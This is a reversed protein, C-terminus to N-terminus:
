IFTTKPQLYNLRAIFHFHSFISYFCFLVQTLLIVEILEMKDRNLCRFCNNDQQIEM